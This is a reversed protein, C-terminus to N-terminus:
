LFSLEESKLSYSLSRCSGPSEFSGSPKLGTRRRALTQSYSIRHSNLTLIPIDLNIEPWARLQNICPSFPSKPGYPSPKSVLFQANWPVHWSCVQPRLGFHLLLSYPLYLTLDISQSPWTQSSDKSGHDPIPYSFPIAPAQLMTTGHWQFHHARNQSLLRQYCGHFDLSKKFVSFVM